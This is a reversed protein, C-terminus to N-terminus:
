ILFFYSFFRLWSVITVCIVYYDLVRKQTVDEMQEVRVNGIVNFCMLNMITSVLDVLTWLDFVLKKRAFLNFLLKALLSLGIGSSFITGLFNIQNYEYIYDAIL